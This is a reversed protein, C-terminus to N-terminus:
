RFLNSAKEMTIGSLTAHHPNTRTPAPMVDGGATRVAGVTTVGVQKHPIGPYSTEPNPATLKELSLGAGADVSVAHIDGTTDVSVGSGKAFSEPLNLGGRVALAEDPLRVM